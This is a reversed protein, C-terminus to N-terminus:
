IQFVLKCNENEIFSKNLLKDKLDFIGNGVYSIIEQMDIIRNIQLDIVRRFAGGLHGRSGIIKISNTILYDVADIVLSEGKRALLIIRACPKMTHIIKNICTLVGSTDVLVDFQLSSELLENINYFVNKVYKKIIQRRIEIPEIITIESFGFVSKALMATYCGLPGTGIILISEGGRPISNTLGIFSVSVPEICVGYTMASKDYNVLDSIDYVLESPIDVIEGFLGDIEMGLLKSNICQNFNGNLCPVCQNCKLISTFCVIMGIKINSANQGVDLVEGIGEHGLIRGNPGVSFPASCLVCGDTHTDLLHLDTGCISLSLIKVRIYYDHLKGLQGTCIKIEPDYYNHNIKKASFIINKSKLM